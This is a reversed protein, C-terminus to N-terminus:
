ASFGCTRYTIYISSSKKMHCLHYHQVLSIDSSRLWIMQCDSWHIDFLEIIRTLTLFLWRAGTLQVGYVPGHCPPLM